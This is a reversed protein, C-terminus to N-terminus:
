DTLNLLSLIDQSISCNALLLLFSTSAIFTPCYGIRPSNHLCYKDWGSIRSTKTRIIIQSIVNLNGPNLRHMTQQPTRDQPCPRGTAMLLTFPFTQISNYPVRSGRAECSCVWDLQAMASSSMLFPWGVWDCCSCETTPWMNTRCLFCIFEIGFTESIQKVSKKAPATNHWKWMINAMSHLPSSFVRNLIYDTMPREKKGPWWCLLTIQRNSPSSLRHHKSQKRMKHLMKCIELPLNRVGIWSPISLFCNWAFFSCCCFKPGAFFFVLFFSYQWLTHVVQHPHVLNFLHPVYFSLSLEADCIFVRCSSSPRVVTGVTADFPKPAM